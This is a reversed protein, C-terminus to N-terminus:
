FKIERRENWIENVSIGMADKLVSGTITLSLNSVTQLNRKILKKYVVKATKSVRVDQDFGILYLSQGQGPAEVLENNEYM